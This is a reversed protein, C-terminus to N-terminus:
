STLKGDLFTTVSSLLTSKNSPAKRTNRGLAKPRRQLGVWWAGGLDTLNEANEPKRSYGLSDGCSDAKGRTEPPPGQEIRVRM